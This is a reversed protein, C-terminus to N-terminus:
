VQGFNASIVNGAQCQAKLEDLYDAWRQMMEFRQRLHKTRNYARGNADKVAHALQQEIWEIRYGLVEDLLTRATARFGHPTMSNNDYGMTRLATRVANESMPRTAGRASPFVYTSRSNITELERLIEIAQRSLPIIHSEKMKMKEAPIEILQEAWNVEGWALHRLEGPRCFFLASLKLANKVTLTGEFADISVMLRGVAAPTILAPHHRTVRPTLAGKLDTAPNREAIGISIAFRFIQSSYNRLKHATETAGRKEVRRLVSLLQPVTIDTIALRGLEPFVDKELAREVRIRYGDSKDASKVTLWDRAVSEFSNAASMLAVLKAQQKAASPDIGQALKARADDRAARADKLSVEPYVGISLKRERNMFRYKMRWYKGGNPKVLLYLGREDSIKYEKEQPHASAIRKATLGSM